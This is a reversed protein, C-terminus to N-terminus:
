LDDAFGTDSLVSSVGPTLDPDFITSVHMSHRSLTQCAGVCRSVSRNGICYCNCIHYPGASREATLCVVLAAHPMLCIDVRSIRGYEFVNKFFCL